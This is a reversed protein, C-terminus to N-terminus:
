RPVLTGDEATRMGDRKPLDRWWWGGDISRQAVELAATAAGWMLAVAALVCLLSRILPRLSM